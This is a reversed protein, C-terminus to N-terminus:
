RGVGADAPQAPRVAPHEAGVDRAPDGGDPRLHGPEGDAVLDVAVVEPELAAEGLIGHRGLRHERGLRRREGEDLRRRDRLRPGDGQLAGRTGPGAGPHQDVAGTAAGAGERHLEGLGGPRVHRPHVVRALEVEHAGEAGVLHEVVADVVEGALLGVVEHEVEDRAARHRVVPAREHGSPAVQADPPRRAGHEAHQDGSGDDPASEPRRIPTSATLGPGSCKPGRASRQTAPSTAMWTSRVKVSSSTGSASAWTPSPRASPLTTTSTARYATVRRHGVNGRRSAVAGPVRRVVVDNACRLVPPGALDTEAGTVTTRVHFVAGAGAPLTVLADDVVADPDVRDVLLTVDKALSRATVDVRYGGPEAVVSVDLPAPDLALDVDEAWTHVTRCEGLTAVLAEGAVDDPVRVGAGLRGPRVSGRAVTVEVADSALVTGDFRERRVHLIGAWPEDTDNVVAVVEEEGAGGPAPRRQVTLLRDAYSARLAWWLPKPREDGDVAAWSTM